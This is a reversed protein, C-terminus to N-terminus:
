NSMFRKHRRNHCDTCLAVLNSYDLRREWCEQIPVIHHVECALGGCDLCIYKAESIKKHSMVKWSKSKYFNLYKRNKELYLARGKSKKKPKDIKKDDTKKNDPKFEALCQKCDACYKHPYEVPNGCRACQKFM